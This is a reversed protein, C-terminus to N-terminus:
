SSQAAPMDLCSACFPTPQNPISDDQYIVTESVLPDDLAIPTATSVQGAVTEVRVCAVRDTVTRMLCLGVPAGPATSFNATADAPGSPAYARLNTALAFAPSQGPYFVVMTYALKAKWTSCLTITAPVLLHGQDTYAADFAGTACGATVWFVAAPTPVSVPSPTAVVTLSVTPSPAATSTTARIQVALVLLACAFLLAAIKTRM